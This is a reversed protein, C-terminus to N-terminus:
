TPAPLEHAQYAFRRYLVALALIGMSFLAPAQLPASLIGRVILLGSVFAFIVPNGVWTRYRKCTLHSGTPAQRDAKRRLIFIGLASMMYCFFKIIEILSILGTFSGAVIFFSALTGNLLLAFVPVSHEWRLRRTLRVVALVPLRFPWALARCFYPQEEQETCCHSNALVPPFYARQAAAVCLKAVSFMNANVAGMASVAVVVTFVFGGWAGITRNAFEIVVAKSERIVNLPLCIYLSANMLVFGVIAITMAGNIVLPLDKTPNEMEGTVFGASEWGGYSFLAAFVATSIDGLSEWTDPESSAPQDRGFWGTDSAPVGDGYGLMYITFGILVISGLAALKLIMFLNAAKAGATAGLCNIATLSAVCGLAIIKTTWPLIPDSPRFAKLLYDAFITSIVANSAPKVVGVWIWPFLYGAYDGWSAQLYEQIGGNSPVLLGLEVFSAAGTWVLLGATFFVGLAEAPSHVQQAILSPASFVGSGIQLGIVLALCNLPSLTPGKREARLRNHSGSRPLLASRVSIQEDM